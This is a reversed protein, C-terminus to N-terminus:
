AETMPHHTPIDWMRIFQEIHHSMEPFYSQELGFGGFALWTMDVADTFPSQVIQELRVDVTHWGRGGDAVRVSIEVNGAQNIFEALDDECSHLRLLSEAFQLLDYGYSIFKYDLSLSQQEIHLTSPILPADDPNYCFNVRLEHRTGSQSRLRQAASDLDLTLELNPCM